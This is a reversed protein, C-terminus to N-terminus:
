IRIRYTVVSKKDNLLGVYFLGIGDKQGYGSTYQACSIGRAVKEFPLSYAFATDTICPEPSFQPNHALHQQLRLYEKTGIEVLACSEYDGDLLTPYSSDKRLIHGSAPFPLLTIQEYEKRYFEDPPYLEIYLLYSVCFGVGALFLIGAWNSIRRRLWRYVAWCMALFALILLVPIIVILAWM